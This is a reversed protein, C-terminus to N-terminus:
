RRLHIFRNGNTRGDYSPWDAQSTVQRYRVGEKRLLHVRGDQTRLQMDEFSQNVALGNLKGGDVTEVSVPVPVMDGRRPLLMTRLYSLLDDLEKADLKVAPMGRNPLGNSVINAIDSNAQNVIRIVIGPAFEGGNGDGGHCVACRTEFVRKRPTATQASATSFAAAMLIWRLKTDM